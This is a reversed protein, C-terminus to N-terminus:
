KDQMYYIQQGSLDSLAFKFEMFELRARNRNRKTEWCTFNSLIAFVHQFNIKSCVVISDLSPALRIYCLLTHSAFCFASLTIQISLIM